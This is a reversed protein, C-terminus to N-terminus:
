VGELGALPRSPDSLPAGAGRRRDQGHRAGDALMVLKTRAGSPTKATHMSHPNIGDSMVAKQFTVLMAAVSAQDSMATRSDPAGSTFAYRGSWGTTDPYPGVAIEGVTELHDYPGYSPTWAVICDRYKM